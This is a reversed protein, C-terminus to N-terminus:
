LWPTFVFVTLVILVFSTFLVQQWNREVCTVYVMSALVRFYSTLMLAAISLDILLKPWFAPSSVHKLDVLILLPLSKARVTGELQAWEANKWQLALSAAAALGVSLLTGNRLITSILPEVDFTALWKLRTAAKM